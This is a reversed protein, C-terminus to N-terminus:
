SLPSSSNDEPKDLEHYLMQSIGDVLGIKPVYMKESGSWKMIKTYITLAPIIVDARDMKMNLQELRQDFSLRSFVDKIGTLYDLSLPKGYDQRSYKFAFNINGGSGILEYEDSEIQEKIWNKMEKKFHEDDVKGELMRVTGVRFSKSLQLVGKSIFSLETSGGGVDVYIYNKDKEIFNKLETNLIIEAEQKGDIIELDVEAKERIMEVVDKGNEAERMASTALAKYDSVEHVNMLLRFAKMTDILRHINYSSIKENVFVDKGLRIPVRVLSTKNFTIEDNGEYVTSILLRIANSGVDLAAIKKFEM